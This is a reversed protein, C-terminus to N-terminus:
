RKEFTPRPSALGCRWCIPARSAGSTQPANAPWPRPGYFLVGRAPQMGFKEFKEPFDIPYLIMEQLSRKTVELGGIGGFM